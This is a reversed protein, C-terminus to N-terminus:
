ATPPPLAAIARIEEVHRDDTLSRSVYVWRFPLVAM